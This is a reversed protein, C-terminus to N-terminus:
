WCVCLWSHPLCGPQRQSVQLQGRLFKDRRRGARGAHQADDRDVVSDHTHVSFTYIIWHPSPKPVTWIYTKLWHLKKLLSLHQIKIGTSRQFESVVKFNPLGMNQFSIKIKLVKMKFKYFISQKNSAICTAMFVKM